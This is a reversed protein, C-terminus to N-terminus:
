QPRFIADMKAQLGQAAQDLTYNDPSDYIEEDIAHRLRILDSLANEGADAAALDQQLRDGAADILIEAEKYIALAPANNNLYALRELHNLKCAARYTDVDDILDLLADNM